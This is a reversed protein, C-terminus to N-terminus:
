CEVEHLVKVDGRLELNSFLSRWKNNSDLIAVCRCKRGRVIYLRGQSIPKEGPGAAHHDLKAKSM